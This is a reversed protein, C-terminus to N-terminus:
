VSKTLKEMIFERSCDYDQGLPVEQNGFTQKGTKADVCYCKAEDCQKLVFQCDATFKLDVGLLGSASAFEAREKECTVTLFCV